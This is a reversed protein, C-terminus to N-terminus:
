LGAEPRYPPHQNCRKWFMHEDGRMLALHAIVDDTPCMAGAWSGAYYAIPHMCLAALIRMDETRSSMAVTPKLKRFLYTIQSRPSTELFMGTMFYQMFQNHRLMDGLLRVATAEQEIGWAASCRLTRVDHGIHNFAPLKGWDIKGDKEMIIIDCRHQSSYWSNRKKWGDNDAPDDKSNLVSALAHSPEVILREGELPLPIGAWEATHGAIFRLKDRADTCADVGRREPLLSPKPRQHRSACIAKPAAEQKSKQARRMNRALSM